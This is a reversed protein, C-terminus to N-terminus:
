SFWFDTIFDEFRVLVWMSLIVSSIKLWALLCIWARWFTNWIITSMPRCHRFDPIHILPPYHDLYQRSLDEGQPEHIRCHSHGQQSSRFQRDIGRLPWRRIPPPWVGYDQHTGFYTQAPYPWWFSYPSSIKILPQCEFSFYTCVYAFQRWRRGSLSIASTSTLIPM